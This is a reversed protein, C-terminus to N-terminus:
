TAVRELYWVDWGAEDTRAYSVAWLQAEGEPILSSNIEAQTEDDMYPHIHVFVFHGPYQYGVYWRKRSLDGVPAMSSTM